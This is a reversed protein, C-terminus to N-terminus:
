PKNKWRQYVYELFRSLFYLWIGELVFAIPGEFFPLLLFPFVIYGITSIAIECSLSPSRLSGCLLGVLFLFLFLFVLSVYILPTKSTPTLLNLIIEKLILKKVKKRM